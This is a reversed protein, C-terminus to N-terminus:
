AANANAALFRDLETAPIRWITRRGSCVDFARIEGRRIRQRIKSPDLRVYDAFEDTTLLPTRTGQDARSHPKPTMM